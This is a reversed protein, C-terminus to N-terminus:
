SITCGGTIPARTEPKPFQALGPTKFSAPVVNNVDVLLSSHESYPRLDTRGTVYSNLYNNKFSIYVVTQKWLRGCPCYAREAALFTFAIKRTEMSILIM